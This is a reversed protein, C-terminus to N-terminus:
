RPKFEFAGPLLEGITLLRASTEEDPDCVLIEVDKRGGCFEWIVQRCAGCPSGGPQHGGVLVVCIRRIVLVGSVVMAYVAVREACMTLGYSANEVNVGAHGGGKEDEVAAGVPFRSYPAYVNERARRATRYLVGWTRKFEDSKKDIERM